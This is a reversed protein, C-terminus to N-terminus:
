KIITMPWIFRARVAEQDKKPTSFRSSRVLRKIENILEPYPNELIDVLTVQGREDIMVDLKVHVQNINQRSLRRPFRVRLPTLLRPLEDLQNLDFADWDINLTQWQIPKSDFVPASPKIPELKRQVEISPALQGADEIPLTIPTEMVRQSEPAPPPPRPPPPPLALTVEQLKIKEPLQDSLANGLWLTGLVLAVIIASLLSAYIHSRLSRHSDHDPIARSM